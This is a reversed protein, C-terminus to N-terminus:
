SHGLLAWSRRLLAWSCGLLAGLTGFLAGLIWFFYLVRFNTINCLLSSNSGLGLCCVGLVLFCFMFFCTIGSDYSVCLFCANVGSSETCMHSSDTLLEKKPKHQTKYKNNTHQNNRPAMKSCKPCLFNILCTPPM